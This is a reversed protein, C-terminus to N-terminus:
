DHVQIGALAIRTAEREITSQTQLSVSMSTGRLASMQRAAQRYTKRFSYMCKISAESDTGLRAHPSQIPQFPSATDTPPRAYSVAVFDQLKISPM